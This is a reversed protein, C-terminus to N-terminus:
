ADESSKSTNLDLSSIESYSYYTQTISFNSNNKNNEKKNENNENKTNNLYIEHLSKTEKKENEFYNERSHYNKQLKFLNLKSCVNKDSHSFISINKNKKIPFEKRSNNKEIFYNLNNSYIEIFNEESM